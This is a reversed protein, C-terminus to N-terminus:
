KADMQGDTYNTMYYENDPYQPSNGDYGDQYGQEMMDESEGGMDILTDAMSVGRFGIGWEGPDIRGIIGNYWYGRANEPRGALDWAESVLEGIENMIDKFRTADDNKNESIIKNKEEKIIRKLQRKTLKM